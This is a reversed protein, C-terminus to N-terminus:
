AIASASARIVPRPNFAGARYWGAVEGLFWVGHDPYGRLEADLLVDAIVTAHAESVELRTLLATMCARLADLGVTREARPAAQGGAELHAM